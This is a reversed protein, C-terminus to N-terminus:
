RPRLAAPVRCRSEDLRWRVTLWDSNWRQMVSRLITRHRHSHVDGVIHSTSQFRCGGRAPDGDVLECGPHEDVIHGLNRTRRSASMKREDPDARTLAADTVADLLQEIVAEATVSDDQDDVGTRQDGRRIAGIAVVQGTDFEEFGSRSWQHRSRHDDGFSRVKQCSFQAAIPVSRVRLSLDLPGVTRRWVPPLSGHRSVVGDVDDDDPGVRVLRASSGCNCVM